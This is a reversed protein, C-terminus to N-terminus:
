MPDGRQYFGTCQKGSYKSYFGGECGHRGILCRKFEEVRGQVWSHLRGSREGLKKWRLVKIATSDGRGLM